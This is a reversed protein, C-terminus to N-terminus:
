LKRQKLALINTGKYMCKLTVNQPRPALGSFLVYKQMLHINMKQRLPKLSFASIDVYGSNEAWLSQYRYELAFM